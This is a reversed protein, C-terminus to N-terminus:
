LVAPVGTEATRIRLADGVPCVFIKGDGIEGTRNERAIADVVLPVISDELWVWVLRKPLIQQGARAANRGPLYQLGRQRGRGLVRSVTFSSIGLGLLARKTRGWMGPRIIAIVEKM